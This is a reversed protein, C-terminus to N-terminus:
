SWMVLRARSRTKPSLYPAGTMNKMGGAVMVTQPGATIQDFVAIVTTMGSGCVKKVTTCPVSQPLGAPLVCGMLVEDVVDTSVGAGAITSRISAAGLDTASVGSFAGQFRGMPTRSAGVICVTM